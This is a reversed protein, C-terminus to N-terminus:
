RAPAARDGGASGERGAGPLVEAYCGLMRACWAETGHSAAVWRANEEGQESRLATPRALMSGLREALAGADGSAFTSIHPASGWEASGPIDSMVVALGCALAEGVAGSQGEHRSASV